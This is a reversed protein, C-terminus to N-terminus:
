DPHRHKQQHGAGQQGGRWFDGLTKAGASVTFDARNHTLCQPQGQHHPQHRGAHQEAGLRDQVEHVDIRLQDARAHLVQVADGATQRGDGEVM